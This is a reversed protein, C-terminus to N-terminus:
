PRAATFKVSVTTRSVLPVFGTKVLVPMIDYEFVVPRPMEVGRIDIPVRRLEGEDRVVIETRGGGVAHVLGHADITAIGPEGVSLQAMCTVDRGGSSQRDNSVLLQQTAEPGALTIAVPSVRLGAALPSAAIAVLCLLISLTKM